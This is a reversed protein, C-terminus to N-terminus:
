LDEAILPQKALDFLVSHFHYDFWLRFMELSRDKPWLEEPRYWGKLPERLDERM